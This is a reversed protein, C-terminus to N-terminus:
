GTEPSDVAFSIVINSLAGSRGRMREIDPGTRSEVKRRKRYINEKSIPKAAAEDLLNIVVDMKLSTQSTAHGIAFYALGSQSLNQEMASAITTSLHIRIFHLKKLVIENTILRHERNAM